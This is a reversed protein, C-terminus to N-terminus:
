LRGGQAVLPGNTDGLYSQAIVKAARSWDWEDEVFRRYTSLDITITEEAHMELMSIARDYEATHNVPATLHLINTSPPAPLQRGSDRCQALDDVYSDLQACYAAYAEHLKHRYRKEAEHYEATHKERNERLRATLATTRVTVTMMTGGNQMAM